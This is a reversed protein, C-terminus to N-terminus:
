GEDLGRVYDVAIGIVAEVARPEIKEVIDNETHYYQSRSFLGTPLGIVSTATIGAAAFAAADTGGGGFPIALKRLRQGRATAVQVLEDAMARSLATTFNRDRTCVALDVLKYVSEVNFVRTPILRLEGRHEKAHHIAGRQGVEEGDTSLV